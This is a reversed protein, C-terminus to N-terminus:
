AKEKQKGNSCDETNSKSIIESIRLLSVTPIFTSCVSTDNQKANNKSKIEANRLLSNWGAERCVLWEKLHIVTEYEGRLTCTLLLAM